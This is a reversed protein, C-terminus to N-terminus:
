GVERRRTSKPKHQVNWEPCLFVILGRELGPATHVPLGNWVSNEPQAVIVEVREGAALAARLLPRAPLREPNRGHGYMRDHLDGSGVYMVVDSMVWAYTGDVNPLSAEFNQLTDDGTALRFEGAKRFGRKLFERGGVFGSRPTGLTNEDTVTRKRELGGRLGTGECNYGPLDLEYMAAIRDEKESVPLVEV